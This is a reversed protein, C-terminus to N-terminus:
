VRSFHCAIPHASSCLVQEKTLFKQMDSVSIRTKCSHCGGDGLALQEFTQATLNHQSRIARLLCSVAIQAEQKEM